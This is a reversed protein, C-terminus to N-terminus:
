DIMNKNNKRGIWTASLFFVILVGAGVIVLYLLNKLKIPKNWKNKQNYLVFSITFMAIILSLIRLRNSSLFDQIIYCIVPVLYYSKRFIERTWKKESYIINQLYIYSFIYAFVIVPKQLFLLIHPLEVDKSYSTHAKFLTLAETLNNFTGFQGAINLVMYLLCSIIIINYICIVIIKWRQVRIPVIKSKEEAITEDYQKNKSYFRDIIFSIIIFEIGGFFLVCFTSLKMDINWNSINWIACLISFVYVLCFVNAPHIIDKKLKLYSILFMVIFLVLVLFIMNIPVEM